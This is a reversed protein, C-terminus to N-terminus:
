GGPDGGGLVWHVRRDPQVPDGSRSYKLKCRNHLAKKQFFLSIHPSLIYSLTCHNYWKIPNVLILHWIINKFINEFFTKLIYKLGNRALKCDLISFISLCLSGLFSTRLKKAHDDFIHLTKRQYQIQQFLQAFFAGEFKM